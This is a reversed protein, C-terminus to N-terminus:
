GDNSEEYRKREHREAKRASIIHFEGEVYVISIVVLVRTRASMGTVKIRQEGREWDREFRALPDDLVTM